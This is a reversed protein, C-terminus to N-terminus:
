PIRSQLMVHSLFFNALITNIEIVDESEETSLQFRFLQSRLQRLQEIFLFMFLLGLTSVFFQRSSDSLFVIFENSLLLLISLKSPHQLGLLPELNAGCSRSRHIQRREHNLAERRLRRMKGPLFVGLLESARPLWSAVPVPWGLAKWRSRLLISLHLTSRPMTRSRQVLALAAGHRVQCMKLINAGFSPCQSDKRHSRHGDLYSARQFYHIM